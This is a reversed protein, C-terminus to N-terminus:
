DFSYHIKNFLANFSLVETQVDLGKLASDYLHAVTKMDKEKMGRRTIEQTGLRAFPRGGLTTMFNTSINNKVLNRYLEVRDQKFTDIFVHVQENNTIAKTNSHRVEHGIKSLESALAQSNAIVQNAYDHGFKEYELISVALATLDNIHVSSVFTTNILLSAKEGLEKDKFMIVGRQPGAFTKHTNGCLIDAGEKFPSQFRGGLILGLTHSVDFIIIITDGLAKRLELLNVPNLYVSIDIYLTTAGTKEFIKKTKEVNFSLKEQDFSAYTQKRGIKEIIGKTAIHGGDQPDLTVITEGPQTVALLTNMMAHLGSFSNLNVVSAGTMKKLAAQAKNELAAIEPLGVFTFVGFDVIGTEDGPGFYYRESLKSAFFTRATESLQNENVTLHLFSSNTSERRSIDEMLNKLNHM